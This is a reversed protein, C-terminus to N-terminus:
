KNLLDIVQGIDESEVLCITYFMPNLFMSPNCVVSALTTVVGDMVVIEKSQQQTNLPALIQGARWAATRAKNLSFNCLVEDTRGGVQDLLGFMPSVAAIERQVEEILETLVLNVENFDHALTPYQDGPCTQAAAVSLDLNIHANMGLLLHQLILAQRNQSMEFAYQWCGSPRYGRRYQDWAVLYRNAFIVDFKEMRAGDEFRGTTIGRKIEVTVKRYLAAFYGLRSKERRATDILDDMRSIVQDITQPPRPGQLGRSLPPLTM